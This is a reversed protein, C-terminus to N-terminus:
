IIGRSYQKVAKLTKTSMDLESITKEYHFGLKELLRISAENEPAVKATFILINSTSQVIQMFAQLVESMIGSGWYKKKLEYGVEATMTDIYLENIGFSGIVEGSTKDMIVYRNAAKEQLIALIIERAQEVTSFTEINMFRTVDEDSWVQLMQDADDCTMMRNQTRTTEFEAPIKRLIDVLM